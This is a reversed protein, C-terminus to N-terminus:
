FITYGAGLLFTRVIFDQSAQLTEPTGAVTELHEGWIKFETWFSIGNYFTFRFGAIGTLDPSRSEYHVTQFTPQSYYDQLNRFTSKADVINYTLGPAVIINLKNKGSGADWEVNPLIVPLSACFYPKFEYRPELQNYPASYRIDEKASAYGAEIRAGLFELFDYEVLGTILFGNADMLVADEYSIHTKYIGLYGFNAGAIWSAFSIPVFAILAVLAILKPLM